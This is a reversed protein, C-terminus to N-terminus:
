KYVKMHKGRKYKCSPYEGNWNKTYEASFQPVSYMQLILYNKGNEKQTTVRQAQSEHALCM